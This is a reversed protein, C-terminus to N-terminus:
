ILCLNVRFLPTISQLLSLDFSQVTFHSIDTSYSHFGICVVVFVGTMPDEFMAPYTEDRDSSKSIALVKTLPFALLRLL